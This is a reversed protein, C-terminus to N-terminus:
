IQRLYYIAPLSVNIRNSANFPAIIHIDTHGQGMRKGLKGPFRIM